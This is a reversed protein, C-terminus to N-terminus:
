WWRRPTPRTSRSCMKGPKVASEFTGTRSWRHNVSDTLTSSWGLAYRDGSWFRVQRTITLGRSTYAVCGFWGGADPGGCTVTRSEAGLGAGARAAMFTSAGSSMNEQFSESEQLQGVDGAFSEGVDSAVTQDIESNPITTGPGAASDSSCAVAGMVAAMAAMTALATIRRGIPM